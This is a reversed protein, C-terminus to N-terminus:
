QVYRITLITGTLKSVLVNMKSRKLVNDVVTLVTRSSTSIILEWFEFELSFMVLGVSFSFFLRSIRIDACPNTKIIM